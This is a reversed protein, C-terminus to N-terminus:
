TCGFKQDPKRNYILHIIIKRGSSSSSSSSKKRERTKGLLLLAELTQSSKELTENKESAGLLKEHETNNHGNENYINFNTINSEYNKQYTDGGTVLM